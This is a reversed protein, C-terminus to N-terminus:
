PRLPPPPRRELPSGGLPWPGAVVLGCNLSAGPNATLTPTRPQVSRPQHASVKIAGARVGDGGTEGDRGTQQQAGPRISLGGCKPSCRRLSAMAVRLCDARSRPGPLAC